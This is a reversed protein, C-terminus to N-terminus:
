LILIPKIKNDVVEVPRGNIYPRQNKIDVKADPDVAHIEDRIAKNDLRRKRSKETKSVALAKSIRKKEHKRNKSERM